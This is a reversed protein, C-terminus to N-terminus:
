VRIWGRMKRAVPLVVYDHLPVIIRYLSRLYVPLPFRQLHVSGPSTTSRVLYIAKNRAGEHLHYIFKSFSAPGFNGWVEEVEGLLVASMLSVIHPLKRDANIWDQVEDPIEAGLWTVAAYLGVKMMRGCGSATARSMCVQWDLDPFSRIVEAVDSVMQIRQWQGKAGCVCLVLLMDEASFTKISSEQFHINCSRNWLGEYDIDISIRRATLSWHPEVIVSDKCVVIDKEFQYLYSQWDAPRVCEDEYGLSSMVNILSEIQELRFLFDIDGFQRLGINGYFCHAASAGKYHLTEIGVDALSANIVELEKAFVTNKQEIMTTLVHLKRLVNKPVVEQACSVLNRLVLPTVQHRKALNVLHNWDSVNDACANIQQPDVVTRATALLLSMEPSNQILTSM